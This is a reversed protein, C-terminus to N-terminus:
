PEGRMSCVQFPIIEAGGAPVPPFTRKRRVPVPDDDRQLKDTRPKPLRPQHSRSLSDLLRKDKDM